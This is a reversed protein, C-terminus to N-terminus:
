QANLAGGGQLSAVGRWDSFSCTYSIGSLSGRPHGTATHIWVARKSWCCKVTELVKTFCGICVSWWLSLSLASTCLSYIACYGLARSHLAVWRKLPRAAGNLRAQDRFSLRGALASPSELCYFTLEQWRSKDFFYEILTVEVGSM